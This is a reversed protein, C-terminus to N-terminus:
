NLCLMEKSEFRSIFKYDHNGKYKSDIFTELNRYQFKVVIPLGYKAKLDVLESIIKLALDKSGSHNNAMDAVIIPLNYRSSLSWSRM